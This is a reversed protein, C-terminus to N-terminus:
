FLVKWEGGQPLGDGDDPMPAAEHAARAAVGASGRSAPGDPAMGPPPAMGRPPAVAEATAVLTEPGAAEAAPSDAAAAALDSSTSRPDFSSVARLGRLAAARRALAESAAWALFDVGGASRHIAAWQGRKSSHMALVINEGPIRADLSTSFCPNESQVLESIVDWGYGEFLLLKIMQDSEGIPLGLQFAIRRDLDTGGDPACELAGILDDITDDDRSGDAM